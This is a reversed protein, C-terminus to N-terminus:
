FVVFLYPQMPPFLSRMIALIEASPNGWGRWQFDEPNHSGYILASLGQISLECDAKEAKSIQLLGNISEFHFIDNNWACQPDTIKASFAGGGVQMGALKLVNIVRGMPTLWIDPDGKVALDSIWTEPRADPHLRRIDVETTQDLHMAAFQLLLYRGLSSSFFLNPIEFTGGSATIKYPMVGIVEGSEDRAVALWLDAGRLNEFESTLFMGMGHIKPQQALVFDRYIPWGESRLMFEVTGHLELSLLPKMDGTKFKVRRHNVFLTYGMREYFSERFPYLTAVAYGDENFQRHAEKMLDRVYGKRRTMPSSTVGWIGGMKFVKGRITQSMPSAMVTAVAKEEEFMALNLTEAYIGSNKEYNSFDLPPSTFFAYRHLPAYHTIVEDSSLRRITPMLGRLTFALFQIIYSSKFM